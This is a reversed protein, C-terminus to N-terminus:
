RKRRKNGKAKRRKFKAANLPSAKTANDSAPGLKVGLNAAEMESNPDISSSNGAAAVQKAREEKFSEMLRDELEAMPASIGHVYNGGWAASAQEM